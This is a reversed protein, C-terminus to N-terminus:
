EVTFLSLRGTLTVQGLYLPLGALKKGSSSNALGEIVNLYGLPPAFLFPDRFM